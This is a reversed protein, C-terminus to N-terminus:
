VHACQNTSLTKPKFAHTHLLNHTQSLETIIPRKLFILKLKKKREELTRTEFSHKYTLLQSNKEGFQSLELKVFFANNQYYM